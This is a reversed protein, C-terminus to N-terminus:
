ALEAERAKEPYFHTSTEKILSQIVQHVAQEDREGQAKSQTYLQRQRDASTGQEVMSHCHALYHECELAEAHPQLQELLESVWTKLSVLHSHDCMLFQAEAVPYRQARWRNEKACLHQSELTQKSSSPKELLYRALSKMLAAIALADQQSTCTDAIRMEVTPFRASLRLDWWLEKASEIAGAAVMHQIYAQYHEVDDFVPPLGARPLGSLVTARYSGLGTDQGVWFPSSTTLALIIPLYYCLENMLKLRQNMDDVGIHIHM